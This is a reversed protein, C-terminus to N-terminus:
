GHALDKKITGIYHTCLYPVLSLMYCALWSVPAIARVLQPILTIRRLRIHCGPFLDEIEHKTVGRVSANWPNDRYFDYWLILGDPKLVRLMENALQAQNKPDLISTFVTSQIVVDFAHDSFSLM